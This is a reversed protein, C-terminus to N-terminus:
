NFQEPFKLIITYDGILDGDQITYEGIGKADTFVESLTNILNHCSKTTYRAYITREPDYEKNDCYKKYKYSKKLYDPLAACLPAVAQTGIDARTTHNWENQANTNIVVFDCVAYTNLMLSVLTTIM